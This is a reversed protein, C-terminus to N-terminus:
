LATLDQHREPTRPAWGRLAFGGGSRSEGTLGGGFHEWERVLSRLGYGSEGAGAPDGSASGDNEVEVRVWAADVTVRVVTQTARGHKLLNTIAEGITRWVLPRLGAPVEEWARLDLEGAVGAGALREATAAALAESDPAEVVPNATWIENRSEILTELEQGTAAPGRQLTM